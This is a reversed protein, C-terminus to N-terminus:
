YGILTVLQLPPLAFVSGPGSTPPGSGFFGPAFEPRLTDPTRLAALVDHKALLKLIPLAAKRGKAVAALHRRGIEALGKDLAGGAGVWASPPLPLEAAGLAADIGLAAGDLVAADTAEDLDLDLLTVTHATSQVADGPASAGSEIASKTEQLVGTAPA